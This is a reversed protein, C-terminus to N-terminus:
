PKPYRPRKRAVPVPNLPGYIDLLFGISQPSVGRMVSSAHSMLILRREYHVIADRNLLGM